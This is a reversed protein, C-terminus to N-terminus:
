ESRALRCGAFIHRKDPNYFNRFSPRKIIPRTYRSGGKLVYHEDDFWAKSYRDYPFAIYNDYPAFTNKSWEWAMGTKQLVHLQQAAEWEHELPLRANAFSAFAEAEYYNIGHLPEDPDLEFPGEESLGYWWGRADQRWHEPCSLDNEQKWKWGLDSWYERHEYGGAEIFGLFEANSVPTRRISFAKLEPTHSPLENDFALPLSGGVPYTCEPLSVFDNAPTKATLCKDPFFNYRHRSFARQTLIMLMTEYHQAHHQILFFPLYDDNLLQNEELPEAMGSLLLLNQEHDELTQTLLREKEPLRGGREPKPSQEPFYLDHLHATKSDDGQVGERLWFNEIFCCHGLHLGLPSLEPHYQQRLEDDELPLALSRLRNHVGRLHALTTLRTSM